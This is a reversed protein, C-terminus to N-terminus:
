SDHSLKKAPFPPSISVACLISAAEASSLQEPIPTVHTVWSVVFQSFTGDVTFGSYRGNLCGAVRTGLRIRFPPAPSLRFMCAMTFATKAITAPALRCVVAPFRDGGETLKGSCENLTLTLTQFCVQAM